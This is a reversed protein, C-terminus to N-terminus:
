GEQCIIQLVNYINERRKWTLGCADCTIKSSSDKPKGNERVGSAGATESELVTSSNYRITKLPNWSNLPLTMAGLLRLLCGNNKWVQRPCSRDALRQHAFSSTQCLSQHQTSFECQTSFESFFMVVWQNKMPEDMDWNIRWQKNVVNCQFQLHDLMDSRQQPLDCPAHWKACGKHHWSRHVHFYKAYSRHVQSIFTTFMTMPLWQSMLCPM